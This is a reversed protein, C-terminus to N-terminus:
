PILMVPTQWFSGKQNGPSLVTVQCDYEGPPLKALSVSFKMPVAKSDPDPPDTVALPPTEFAKM